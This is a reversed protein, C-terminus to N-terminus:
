ARVLMTKIDASYARIYVDLEWVAGSNGDFVLGRKYYVAHEYYTGDEIFGVALIGAADEDDPDFRVVKLPTGLKRAAKQLDKWTAGATLVNARVRAVAVLAEPYSIGLCMALAAVSCDHGSEQNVLKVIPQDM